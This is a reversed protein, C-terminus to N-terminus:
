GIGAKAPIVTQALEPHLKRVLPGSALWILGTVLAAAYGDVAYHWGLYVSATMTLLSYALFFLSAPRNIKLFYLFMLVTIAVHMSPMASLANLKVIKGDNTFDMEVKASLFTDLPHLKDQARLHDVLAAYPDPLHTYFDHFFLPGVSAMLVAMINGAIIWSLCYTWLFRMRRLPDQDIFICFELVVFVVVIQIEDRHYWSFRFAPKNFIM